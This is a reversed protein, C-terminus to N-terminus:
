AGGAALRDDAAAGAAEEAKRKEEEIRKIRNSVTNAEFQGEGIQKGEEWAFQVIFTFRDFVFEEPNNPDEPPQDEDAGRAAGEEGFAGADSAAPAYNPNRVTVKQPSGGTAVMVPHTIGLEKLKFWETEPSGPRSPLEVEMTELQKLLTERV